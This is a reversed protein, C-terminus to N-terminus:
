KNVKEKIYELEPMIKPICDDCLRNFLVKESRRQCNWVYGKCGTCLKNYINTFKKILRPRKSLKKMLNEDKTSEVFEDLKSRVKPDLSM